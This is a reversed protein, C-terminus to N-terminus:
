ISEKLAAAITKGLKNPPNSKETFRELAMKALAALQSREAENLLQAFQEEDFLVLGAMMAPTIEDGQEPNIEKFSNWTAILEKRTLGQERAPCSKLQALLPMLGKAPTTM